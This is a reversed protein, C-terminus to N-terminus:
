VDENNKRRTNFAPSEPALERRRSGHPIQEGYTGWLNAKQHMEARNQAFCAAAALM